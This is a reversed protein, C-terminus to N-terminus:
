RPPAGYFATSRASCNLPKRSLPSRSGIADTLSAIQADLFDLHAIIAGIWVSHLHDFRGELAEKLAPLKARLRGNALDALVLPDTTGNVLADLM